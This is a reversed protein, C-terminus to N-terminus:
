KTERVVIESAKKQPLDQSKELAERILIQEEVIKDIKLQASSVEKTTLPM